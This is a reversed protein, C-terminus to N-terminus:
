CLCVVEEEVLAWCGHFWDRLFEASCMMVLVEVVALSNWLHEVFLRGVVQGLEEELLRLLSAGLDRSLCITPM